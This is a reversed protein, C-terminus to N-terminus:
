TLYASENERVLIAQTAEAGLEYERETLM